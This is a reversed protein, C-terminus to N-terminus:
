SVLAVFIETDRQFACDFHEVSQVHPKPRSHLFLWLISRCDCLRRAARSCNGEACMGIVAKAGHCDINKAMRDGSDREDERLLVLGSVRSATAISVGAERAVDKVTAAKGVRAEHEVEPRSMWGLSTLAKTNSKRGQSLRRGHGGQGAM